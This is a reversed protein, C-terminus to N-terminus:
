PAGAALGRAQDVLQRVRQVEFASSVPIQTAHYFGTGQVTVNVYGSVVTEKILLFLLGILCAIAFVIALVIAYPPIRQSMTSNDMVTWVAGKLPHTGSPLIVWLNTVSIEGVTLVIPDIPPIMSVDSM